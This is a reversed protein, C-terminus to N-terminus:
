SAALRRRLTNPRNYLTQETSSRARGTVTVPRARSARSEAGDGKQAAESRHEIVMHM